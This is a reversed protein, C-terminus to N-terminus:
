EFGKYFDEINLKEDNIFFFSLPFTKRDSVIKTILVKGEDSGALYGVIM